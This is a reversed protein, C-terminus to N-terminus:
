TNSSKQMVEVKQADTMAAGIPPGQIGSEVISWYEKSRLINEM